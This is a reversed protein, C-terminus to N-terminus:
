ENNEGEDLSLTYTEFKEELNIEKLEVKINKKLDLFKENLNKEIEVRFNELNNFQEKQKAEMRKKIDIQLKAVNTKAVAKVHAELSEKTLAIINSTINSVNENIIKTTNNLKEELDDVRTKSIKNLVFALIAGLVGLMWLLTQWASDYFERVGQVIQDINYVFSFGEKSVTTNESKKELFKAINKDIKSEITKEMELNKLYIETKKSVEENIGKSTLSKFEISDLINKSIIETTNKSDEGKQKELEEKIFAKISTEEKPTFCFVLSNFFLFTLLIKM